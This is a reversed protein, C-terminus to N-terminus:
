CSAIQPVRWSSLPMSRAIEARQATPQWLSASCQSADGAIILWGEPTASFALNGPM